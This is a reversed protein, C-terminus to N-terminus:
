IDKYLLLFYIFRSFFFLRSLSIRIDARIDNILIITKRKLNMNLKETKKKGDDKGAYHYHAGPDM